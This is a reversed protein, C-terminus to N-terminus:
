FSARIAQKLKRKYESFLWDLYNDTNKCILYSYKKIRFRIEDELSESLEFADWVDESNAACIKAHQEIGLDIAGMSRGGSKLIDAYIGEIDFSLDKSKPFLIKVTEPLEYTFNMEIDEDSRLNELYAMPHQFIRQWNVPEDWLGFRHANNGLDIVAFTKKDPLVRSGRGIM